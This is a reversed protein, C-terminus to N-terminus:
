ALIVSIVRWIRLFFLSKGAPYFVADAFATTKQTKKEYMLHVQFM